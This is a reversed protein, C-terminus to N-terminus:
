TPCKQLKYCYCYCYCNFTLRYFIGVHNSPCLVHCTNPRLVTGSCRRVMGELLTRHVADTRITSTLPASTALPPPPPHRAAWVPLQERAYLTCLTSAYNRYAQMSLAWRWSPRCRGRHYRVRVCAWGQLCM